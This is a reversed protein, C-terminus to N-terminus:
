VYSNVLEMDERNSEGHHVRKASQGICSNMKITLNIVRKMMDYELIGEKITIFSIGM